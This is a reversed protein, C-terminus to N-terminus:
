IILLIYTYIKPAWKRINAYGKSTMIRFYYSKTEVQQGCRLRLKNANKKVSFWMTGSDGRKSAPHPAQATAQLPAPASPLPLVCIDLCVFSLAFAVFRVPGSRFPAGLLPRHAVWSYQSIWSSNLRHNPAPCCDLTRLGLINGECRSRGEALVMWEAAIFSIGCWQSLVNAAATGGFWGVWCLAEQGLISRVTKADREAIRLRLSSGAFRCRCFFEGTM